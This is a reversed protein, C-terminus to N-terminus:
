LENIISELVAIVNMIENRSYYDMNPVNSVNELDDQAKLLVDVKPDSKLAKITSNMQDKAKFPADDVLMELTYIVEDLKNLDIESM